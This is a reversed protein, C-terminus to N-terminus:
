EGLYLKEKLQNYDPMELQALKVATTLDAHIKLYKNNIEQQTDTLRDIRKRILIWKENDNTYEDKLNELHRIEEQMSTIQPQFFNECSQLQTRYFDIKSNFANFVSDILKQICDSQEQIKFREVALEEIRVKAQIQAQKTAEQAKFSEVALEEMRVKAQIQGQKTAEQAKFKELDAYYLARQNKLEQQIINHQMEMQQRKTIEKERLHTEYTGTVKEFLTVGFNCVTEIGSCFCDLGKGLLEKDETRLALENNAM